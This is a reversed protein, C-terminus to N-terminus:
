LRLGEDVKDTSRVQVGVGLAVPVLALVGVCDSVGVADAVVGTVGVQVGVRVGPLVGLRVVVDEGAPDQVCVEVTVVDVVACALTEDVAEKLAVGM